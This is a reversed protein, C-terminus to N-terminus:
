LEHTHEEQAMLRTVGMWIRFLVATSAIAVLALFLALGRRGYFFYGTAFLSSYVALSGALM